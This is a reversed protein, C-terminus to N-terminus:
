PNVPYAIGLEKLKAITRTAADALHPLKGIAAEIVAERSLDFAVFAGTPLHTVVWMQFIGWQAMELEQHLGFKVGKIEIIEGERPLVGEPDAAINFKVKGM